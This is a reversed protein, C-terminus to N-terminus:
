YILEKQREFIKTLPVIDVIYYGSTYETAANARHIESDNYYAFIVKYKENKYIDRNLTNLHTKLSVTAKKGKWTCDNDASEFSFKNIAEHFYFTMNHKESEFILENGMGCFQIDKFAMISFLEFPYLFVSDNGTFITKEKEINKFLDANTLKKTQGITTISFGISALFLFILKRTWTNKM